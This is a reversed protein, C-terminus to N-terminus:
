PTPDSLRRTVKGVYLAAPRAALAEGRVQIPGHLVGEELSAVSGSSLRRVFQSLDEANAALDRSSTKDTEFVHVIYIARDARHKAALALTGAIGTLLQYRLDVVSATEATKTPVLGRLLEVVREIGDSRPNSVARELAINLVDSVRPGFPEDSKAEVTGVFSGSDDHGTFALDASRPDGRRTDFNVRADPEVSDLVANQLDANSRLLRVIESPPGDAASELWARAVEMASRGEVWQRDPDKPGALTLWDALTGINAGNKAIDLRIRWLERVPWVVEVADGGVV